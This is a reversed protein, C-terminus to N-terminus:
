KFKSRVSGNSHGDHLFNLHFKECKKFINLASISVRYLIRIEILETAKINFTYQYPTYKINKHLMDSTDGNKHDILVVHLDVLV